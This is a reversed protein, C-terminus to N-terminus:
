GCLPFEGLLSGVMEDFAYDVALGRGSKTISDFLKCGLSSISIFRDHPSLSTNKFIIFNCYGREQTIVM